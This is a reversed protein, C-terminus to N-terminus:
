VSIKLVKKWRMSETAISELPLFLFSLIYSGGGVLLATLIYRVSQLFNLESTFLLSVTLLVMLLITNLILGASLIKVLGSFDVKIAEAALYFMMVATIFEVGLLGWAIGPLGGWQFGFYTALIVLVLGILHVIMERGLRNHAALVAGCPKIICFFLGAMSLIQLPEAALLWKEGYVVRIFPEALFFLGIYVPLTYVVLLSIMKYFLYRSKDLDDQFKSIERMVPMYVAGGIIGSPLRSLSNAKNYLGVMAPGAIRSIILNGVERKTYDIIENGSVKVGYSAYKKVKEKNLRLFIKVPTLRTILLMLVISSLLGGITLSWVGYGNFAMGISLLAGIFSAILRVIMREKFMMQRNLWSNHINIFPRLLFSIASVRLLDIYIPNDFWVAFWPAILFFLSYILTGIILQVTFVIQFDEADVEKAQVLALGMGGGAVFSALGTFVQITVVLGFDEPFLLRALVVGFAFQMIQKAVSGALLWKAGQRVTQGIGM